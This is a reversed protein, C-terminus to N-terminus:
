RNSELAAAAAAAAAAVDEAPPLTRAAIPKLQLSDVIAEISPFCRPQGDLACWYDKRVAHGSANVVNSTAVVVHLVTGSADKM